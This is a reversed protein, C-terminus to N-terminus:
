RGCCGTCGRRCATSWTSFVDLEFASVSEAFAILCCGLLLLGIVVRLVDGPHRVHGAAKAVQAMPADEDDPVPRRDAVVPVEL